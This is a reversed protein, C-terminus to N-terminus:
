LTGEVWFFGNPTTRRRRLIKFYETVDIAGNAGVIGWRKAIAPMHATAHLYEHPVGMMGCGVLLFGLLTSGSRPTSLILYNRPVGSYEPFDYEEGNLVHSAAQTPPRDRM